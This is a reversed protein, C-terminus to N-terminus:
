RPPTRADAVPDGNEDSVTGSLTYATIEEQGSYHIDWVEIESLVSTNSKGLKIGINNIIDVDATNPVASYDWDNVVATGDVRLTATKNTPNWSAEIQYTTGATLETPGPLTATSYADGGGNYTQWFWAGPTNFGVLAGHHPDKYNFYVGFCMGDVLPKMKFSVKYSGDTDAQLADNM